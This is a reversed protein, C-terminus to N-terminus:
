PERSASTPWWPMGGAWRRRIRRPIDGLLINEPKIDRHIVGESHAYALADAVEAAIRLADDLPFQGTRRLRERLTDGTVYPVVYYLLDGSNGSDHVPLINPYTLRAAIRIERLFRAAGRVDTVDPRLVKVAVQGAHKLDRALYVTAMGGRGVEREITYHAALVARIREIALGTM